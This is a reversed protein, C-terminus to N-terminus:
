FLVVEEHIALTGGAASSIATIIENSPNFGADRSVVVRDNTNLVIGQGAIAESGIAVSIVQGGTSTNTIAIVDRQGNFVAESIKLATTGITESIDNSVKARGLENM